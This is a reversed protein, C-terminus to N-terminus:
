LSVFRLLNYHFDYFEWQFMKLQLLKQPKMNLFVLLDLLWTAKVSDRKMSLSKTKDLPINSSDAKKFFIWDKIKTSHAVWKNLKLSADFILGILYSFHEFSGEEFFRREVDQDQLSIKLM